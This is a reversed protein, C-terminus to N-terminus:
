TDVTKPGFGANGANMNAVRRSELCFSPVLDPRPCEREAPPVTGSPYATRIFPKPYYGTMDSDRKAATRGVASFDRFVGCRLRYM